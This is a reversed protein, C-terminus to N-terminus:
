GGGSGLGGGAAGCWLAAAVDVDGPTAFWRSCGGVGSIGGGSFLGIHEISDFAAQFQRDATAM